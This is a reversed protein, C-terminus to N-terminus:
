LGDVVPSIWSFINKIIFDKMMNKYLKAEIQSDFTLSQQLLTTPQQKRTRRQQNQTHITKTTAPGPLLQSASYLSYTLVVWGLWDPLTGRELLLWCNFPFRPYWGVFCPSEIGQHMSKEPILSGDGVNLFIEYFHVKSQCLKQILLPALWGLMELLDRINKQPMINDVAQHNSPIIKSLGRFIGEFIILNAFNKELVVVQLSKTFIVM